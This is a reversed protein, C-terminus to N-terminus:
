TKGQPGQRMQVQPKRLTLSLSRSGNKQVYSDLKGADSITSATLEGTCCREGAHDQARYPLQSLMLTGAMWCADEEM